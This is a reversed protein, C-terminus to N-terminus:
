NIKKLVNDSNLYEDFKNIMDIAGFLPIGSFKKTFPYYYVNRFPRNDTVWDAGSIMIELNKNKKQRIGWLYHTKHFFQKLEENIVKEYEVILKIDM